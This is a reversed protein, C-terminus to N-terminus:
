NKYENLKNTIFNQISNVIPSWIISSDIYSYVSLPIDSSNTNVVTHVASRVQNMVSHKISDNVISKIEM